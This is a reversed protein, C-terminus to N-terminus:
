EFTQALSKSAVHRSTYIFLYIYIYIYIYTCFAQMIRPLRGSYLVTNALTLHLFLIIKWQAAPPIATKINALLFRLYFSRRDQGSTMLSNRYTLHVNPSIPLNCRRGLAVAIATPGSFPKATFIMSLHPYHRVSWTFNYRFGCTSAFRYAADLWALPLQHFESRCKAIEIAALKKTPWFKSNFKVVTPGTFQVCSQVLANVSIYLLTTANLLLWM